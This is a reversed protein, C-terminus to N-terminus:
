IYDFLSLRSIQAFSSQAAELSLLKKKMNTVAEAYDVDEVDSLATKLQLKTDELIETEVEMVRLSAGVKATVETMKLVMQELDNMGQNIGDRDSEKIANSIDDLAQFFGTSSITVDEETRNVNTYIDSGRRNVGGTLAEGGVSTGAFCAAAWDVDRGTIKKVKISGKPTKLVINTAGALDLNTGSIRTKKANIRTTSQNTAILERSNIQVKGNATFEINDKADFILNKGGRAPSLYAEAKVM